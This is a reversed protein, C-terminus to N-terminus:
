GLEGRAADRARERAAVARWIPSFHPLVVSVVCAVACVAATVNIAVAYKWPRKEIGFVVGLVLGCVLGGAHAANNIFPIFTFILLQLGTRVLMDKFRSDKNLAMTALAIGNICFIAGSAGATAQMPHLYTSVVFGVIGTLVYAIVVRAGGIIPEVFAGLVGLAIMNMAVHFVGLHVFCASLLRWPETRELGGTIGGFRILNSATPTDIHAFPMRAQAALLFAYLLISLGALCKTALYEQERLGRLAGAFVPSTLPKGCRFCTRDGKANFARCWPCNFGGVSM